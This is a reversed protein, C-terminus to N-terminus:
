RKKKVQKRVAYAVAGDIRFTLRDPVGDIVYIDDTGMMGNVLVDAGHADRAYVAPISAASPWSIFTRQGDNGMASPAVNRDGSVQYRNTRLRVAGVDLYEGPASAVSKPVPYRFQVTYPMDSSPMAFSALDFNYVRVSTVITMNTMVDAQAPKLFLRNGEKTISVQWATSDGLAVSHVQEDASLEVMMQYGPAGRLQVIQGADYDIQQLHPDGGTPQPQVQAHAAAAFFLLAGACRLRM